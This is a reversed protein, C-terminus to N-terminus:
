AGSSMPRGRDSRILSARTARSGALTWAVVDACQGLTVGVSREHRGTRARIHCPAHKHVYTCAHSVGTVPVKAAHGTLIYPQAM